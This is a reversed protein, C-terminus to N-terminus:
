SRWAPRRARAEGDGALKYTEVTKVSIRLRAAIQKNSYGQAVQRVVEVERESLDEPAAGAGGAGPRGGAARRGDPGRVHQEAAAHRIAGVLEAAASRKLVYGNAGAEM